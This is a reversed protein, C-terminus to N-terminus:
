KGCTGRVNASVPRIADSIRLDQGIQAECVGGSVGNVNRVLM